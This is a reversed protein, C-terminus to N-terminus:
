ISVGADRAIRLALGSKLNKSGHVPISIVKREGPKSYIHHSGNIRRLSWGNAELLRCMEPGTISKM